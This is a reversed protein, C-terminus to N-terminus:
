TITTKFDIKIKSIASVSRYFHTDYIVINGASTRVPCLNRKDDYEYEIHKDHIRRGTLVLSLHKSIKRNGWFNSIIVVFANKEDSLLSESVILANNLFTQPLQVLWTLLNKIQDTFYM